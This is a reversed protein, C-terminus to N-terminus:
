AVQLWGIGRFQIRMEEGMPVIVMLVADCHQCRVVVGQEGEYVMTEGLHRVQGCSACRAQATTPEFRFLESLVGAIANGDLHGDM